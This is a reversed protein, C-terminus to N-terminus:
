RKSQIDKQTFHDYLKKFLYKMEGNKFKINAPVKAALEM